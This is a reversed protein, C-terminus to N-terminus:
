KNERAYRRWWPLVDNIDLPFNKPEDKEGSDRRVQLIGWGSYKPMGANQLTSLIQEENSIAMVDVLDQISCFVIPRMDADIVNPDDGLFVKARSMAEKRLQDSVIMWSDITLLVASVTDSARLPYIGRRIHSFFRWLQAIGKVIQAYAKGAEELPDESYQADFTLKTAKCEIAITIEDNDRVLLDPTDVQMKKPGYKESGSVSLRPLFAQVMDRAYKEFRANADGLIKQGAKCVDFYLGVTSRYMILEPIPSIFTNFEPSNIIPFLRLVSPIYAIRLEKKHSVSEVLAKAKVRLENLPLSLLSVARQFSEPELNLTKPDFLKVWPATNLFVFLCFAIEVFKEVTIGYNEQFYSGCGGQGYIYVYRYLREVTAFGRQWGFQRQGIRHMELLINEDNVAFASESNELDRLLNVAHAMADFQRCDLAERAKKLICGRPAILILLILTEIDWKHVHFKSTIDRTDAERPYNIYRGPNDKFDSQLNNVAWSLQLFWEDNTLSLVGKLKNELNRKKRKHLDRFAFGRKIKLNKM